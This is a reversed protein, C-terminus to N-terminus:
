RKFSDLGSCAAINDDWGSGMILFDGARQAVSAGSILDGDDHFLMDVTHWNSAATIRFVGTPTKEVGLTETIYFYYDLLNPFITFYIDGKADVTLNDPAGPVEIERILEGTSIKYLLIKEDRTLAVALYDGKGRKLVEVGNPFLLDKAFLKFEGNKYQYVTGTPDFTEDTNDRGTRCDARNNTVFFGRWYVALDNPSCIRESQLTEKATLTTGDWGLVEIRSSIKLPAGPDYVRNVAIMKERNIRRSFSMGHPLFPSFKGFEGSAKAPTLRAPQDKLAKASFYYIGGQHSLHGAGIEQLVKRRDYASLFVEGTKADFAIDEVGKIQEGTEPDTLLISWCAALPSDRKFDLSNFYTFFSYFSIFIVVLTFVKLIKVIM